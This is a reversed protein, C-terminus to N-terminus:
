GHNPALVFDHEVDYYLRDFGNEAQKASDEIPEFKAM